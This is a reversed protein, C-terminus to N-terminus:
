KNMLMDEVCRVPHIDETTEVRSTCAKNLLVNNSTGIVLVGVNLIRKSNYSKRYVSWTEESDEGERQNVKEQIKGGSLCVSACV